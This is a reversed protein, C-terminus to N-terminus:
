KLHERSRVYLVCTRFVVERYRVCLRVLTECCAESVSARPASVAVVQVGKAARLDPEGMASLAWKCAGEDLEQRRGRLLLLASVFFQVVLRQQM